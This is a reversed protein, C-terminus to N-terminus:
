TAYMTTVTRAVIMPCIPMPSAGCTWCAITVFSPDNRTASTSASTEPNRKRRTAHPRYTSRRGTLRFRASSNRSSLATPTAV